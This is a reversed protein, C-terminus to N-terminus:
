SAGVATLLQCHWGPVLWAVLAVMGANLVLPCGLTLVTPLTSSRWRAKIANVIGFAPSGRDAVLPILDNRHPDSAACALAAIAARL